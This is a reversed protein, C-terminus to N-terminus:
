LGKGRSSLMTEHLEIYADAIGEVVSDVNRTQFKPQKQITEWLHECAYKAAENGGHGDFLGVYAQEEMGPIKGLTENPRLTVAVYDELNKRDGPHREAVVSITVGSLGLM